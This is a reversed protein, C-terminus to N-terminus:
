KSRGLEHDLSWRTAQSMSRFHPVRAALTKDDPARVALNRLSQLGRLAEATAPSVSGAELLADLAGAFSTMGQEGLRERAAELVRRELDVWESVITVLSDADVTVSDPSYGPVGNKPAPLEAVRERVKPELKGFEFEWGAGRLKQHRLGELLVGVPKRALLAVLM